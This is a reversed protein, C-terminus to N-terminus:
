QRPVVAFFIVDEGGNNELSHTHEKPCYHCIGPEWNEVEGDLAARGRGQLIYLIESSDDHRHDGIFAGPTLRGRMIRNNGDAVMRAATEGRGGHFGLLVTEETINLDIRM